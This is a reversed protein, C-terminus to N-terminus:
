VTHISSYPKNSSPGLVSLEIEQGHIFYAVNNRLFPTHISSIFILCVITANSEIHAPNLYRDEDDNWIYWLDRVCSYQAHKGGERAGLILVSVM